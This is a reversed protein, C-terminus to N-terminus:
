NSRKSGIMELVREFLNNSREISQRQDLVIQEFRAESNKAAEIYREDGKEQIKELYKLFHVVMWVFVGLSSSLKVLEFWAPMDSVIEEVALLM